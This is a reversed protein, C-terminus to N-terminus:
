RKAKKGKAVLRFYKLIAEHAEADECCVQKLCKLVEKVQGIPLAVKLGERLAVLSAVENMNM